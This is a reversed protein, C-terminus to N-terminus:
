KLISKYNEALSKRFNFYVFNLSFKRIKWIWSASPTRALGQLVNLVRGYLTQQPSVQVEKNIWFMLLAKRKYIPIYKWVFTFKGSRGRSNKYISKDIKYIYFSFLLNLKRTIPGYWSSYAGNNSGAFAKATTTFYNVLGFWSSRMSILFVNAHQNLHHTTYLHYYQWYSSNPTSNVPLSKALVSRITTLLFKLYYYRKGKRM